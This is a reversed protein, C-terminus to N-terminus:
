TMQGKSVPIGALNALPQLTSADINDPNPDNNRLWEM